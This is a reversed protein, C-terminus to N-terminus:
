ALLSKHSCKIVYATFVILGLIGWVSSNQNSGDGTQSHIWDVHSAVDVFTSHPLTSSQSRLAVLQNSKTLPAGADLEYTSYASHDDHLACFQPSEPCNVRLTLMEHLEHGEDAALGWSSLQWPDAHQEQELEPEQKVSERAMPLAIPRIQKHDAPVNQDLMLIALSLHKPPQYVHTVGYVVTHATPAFRQISGLM